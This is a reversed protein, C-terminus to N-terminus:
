IMPDWFQYNPSGFADQSLCLWECRKKTPDWGDNKPYITKAPSKGFGKAIVLFLLGQLVPNQQFSDVRFSTLTAAAAYCNMDGDQTEQIKHYKCCVLDCVWVRRHNLLYSIQLNQGRFILRATDSFFNDNKKRSKELTSRWCFCLDSPPKWDINYTYTYVIICM